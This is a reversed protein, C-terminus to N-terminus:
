FDAFRQDFPILVKRKKQMTFKTKRKLSSSDLMKTSHQHLTTKISAGYVLVGLSLIPEVYLKYIILLQADLIKTSERNLINLIILPFIVWTQPFKFIIHNKKM